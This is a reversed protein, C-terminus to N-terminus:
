QQTPQKQGQDDTAQSPQRKTHQPIRRRPTGNAFSRGSRLLLPGQAEGEERRRGDGLCVKLALARHGSREGAAEKKSQWHGTVQVTM